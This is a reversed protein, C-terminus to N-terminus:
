LKFTFGWHWFTLVQPALGKVTATTSLTHTHRYVVLYEYVNLIKKYFSAITAFINKLDFANWFCIFDFHLDLIEL